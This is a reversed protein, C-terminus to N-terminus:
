KSWCVAHSAGMQQDFYVVSIAGAFQGEEFLDFNVLFCIQTAQYLTARKGCVGM